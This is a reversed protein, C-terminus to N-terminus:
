NGEEYNLTLAIQFYGLNFKIAEIHLLRKLIKKSEWKEFLSNFM